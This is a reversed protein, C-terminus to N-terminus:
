WQISRLTIFREGRSTSSNLISSKYGRAIIYTTLNQNSKCLLSLARNVREDAIELHEACIRENQQGQKSSHESM